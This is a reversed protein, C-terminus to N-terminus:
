FPERGASTQCIRVLLDARTVYNGAGVLAVGGLARQDVDIEGDLVAVVRCATARDGREGGVDGASGVILLGAADIGLPHGVEGLEEAIVVLVAEGAQAGQEAREDQGAGGLAGFEGFPDQGGRM